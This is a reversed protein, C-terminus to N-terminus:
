ASMADFFRLDFLGNSAFDEPTLERRINELIEQRLVNIQRFEKLGAISNL